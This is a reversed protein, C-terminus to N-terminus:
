RVGSEQETQRPAPVDKAGYGAMGLVKGAVAGLVAVGIGVWFLVPSAVVVAWSAIASGILIITVATWAAVSHGHDEHHEHEAM